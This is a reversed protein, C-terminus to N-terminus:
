SVFASATLIEFLNKLACFNLFNIGKDRQCRSVKAFCLGKEAIATFVFTVLCINFYLNKECAKVTIVQSCNRM